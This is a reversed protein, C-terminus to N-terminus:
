FYPKLKDNLYDPSSIRKNTEMDIFFLKVEGRHVRQGEENFIEHFFHIMKTPLEKVTTRITILEDYTIPGGYRSEVYMVPMMIRYKSELEKYTIGLDRIAEARGIEYLTCYNGYYFYGMQDTEGYTVRKKCEHVFM